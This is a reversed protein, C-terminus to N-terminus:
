CNTKGIPDEKGDTQTRLGCISCDFMFSQMGPGLDDSEEDKRIFNHKCALQEETPDITLVKEAM